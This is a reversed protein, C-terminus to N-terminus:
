GRGRRMWAKMMNRFAAEVHVRVDVVVPGRAADVQVQLLNRSVMRSIKGLIKPLIDVTGGTQRTSPEELFHRAPLVGVIRACARPWSTAAVDQVASLHRM